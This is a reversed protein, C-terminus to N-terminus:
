RQCQRYAVVDSLAENIFRALEAEVIRGSRMKVDVVMDEDVPCEGGDWQIWRNGRVVVAGAVVLAFWEPDNRAWHRLTSNSRGTIEELEVLGRLGAAKCIESARM